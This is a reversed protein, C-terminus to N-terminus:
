AVEFARFDFNDPPTNGRTLALTKRNAFLDNSAGSTFAVAAGSIKIAVIQQAEVGFTQADTSDATGLARGRIVLSAIKSVILASEPQGTAAMEDIKVDDSEGFRNILSPDMVGAILDSATWDGGVTVTGIQADANVPKATVDFGALIQTLEVHGGVRISKIAVDSTASTPLGAQGRASILVRTVTSNMDNPDAPWGVLSGKVTIAGIDNAVRIAGSRERGANDGARISGGITVSAIRGAEIGGSSGDQNTFARGGIINGGIKISGIAGLSRVEGTENTFGGLLSGGITMKSIAGGVFIHGTQLSEGGILSGGIKVPGLDFTVYIEASRIGSTNILPRGDISGGITLSALSRGSYVRGTFADAGAIVDGAIKVPGMDVTSYIFGTSNGSGGILSGGLTLSGLKDGPLGGSTVSGSLFGAGGRVDHGIKMAGIAGGGVIRGSNGGQGGIISGGITVPGIAGTASIEGGDTAISIENGVISGGIKVPGISSTSFIAGSFSGLGAILSGGITVRTIAGADILGAFGGGGLVDHGIKVPGLLGPTRIKGSNDGPGGILSGGITVSAITGAGNSHIFASQSGLGIVDGRITVPGIADTSEIEGTHAAHGGLLSGGIFIAGISGNNAASSDTVRVSAEKVDTAITLKDLRGNFTSLLDPAGTSTGFLGLSRATLGKCASGANGADGADIRGLDGDVFVTGLDRGNANIFGVNVFGDGGPGKTAVISVNAGQFAAGTLDLFQLQGAVITINGGAASSLTGAGSTTIVVKDGDVDTFGFSAPAIRSELPEIPASTEM